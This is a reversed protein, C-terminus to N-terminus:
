VQEAAYPRHACVGASKCNPSDATATLRPVHVAPLADLGLEEAYVISARLSRWLLGRLRPVDAPHIEVAEVACRVLRMSSALKTVRPYAPQEVARAM